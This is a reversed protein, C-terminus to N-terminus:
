REQSALDRLLLAFTKVGAEFDKVRIREDKGHARVDDRDVPIGSIGYTQLGARRLYAGDTGGTEMTPVVPCGPWVAATSREVAALM